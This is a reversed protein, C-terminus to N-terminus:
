TKREGLAYVDGDPARVHLWRWASDSDEDLVEVGAAEFERRAAGLDDVEFLPVLRAGERRYFDYYRHGAAFVQLRGGDEVSLEVTEPEEFEVKLGLVDRFLHVTADYDHAPVGIWSISRVRV